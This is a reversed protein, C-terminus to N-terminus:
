QIQAIQRHAVALWNRANGVTVGHLRVTRVLWVQAKTHLQNLQSIHKSVGFKAHEFVGLTDFRNADFVASTQATLLNVLESVNSFTFPRAAQGVDLVHCDFICVLRLAVHYWHM